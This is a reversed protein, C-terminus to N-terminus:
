QGESGKVLMKLIIHPPFGGPIEVKDNLVIKPVSLVHYKKGLEEYENVDIIELFVNNNIVPIQYLLEATIPCKTCDPTVFLKINGKIKLVSEKEKEELQVVNNSIRVLSNLFPWFENVSPIGYYIFYAREGKSVKVFPKECDDRKIVNNGNELFSFEDTLKCEEITLGKIFKSYQSIISDYSM